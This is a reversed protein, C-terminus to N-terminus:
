EDSFNLKRCFRPTLFYLCMGTVFLFFICLLAIIRYINRLIQALNEAIMQNQQTSEHLNHSCKPTQNEKTIIKNVNQM